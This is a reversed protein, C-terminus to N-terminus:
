FGLYKAQLGVLSLNTLRKGIEQYLLSTKMVLDGPIKQERVWAYENDHEPDKLHMGLVRGWNRVYQKDYPKPTRGEALAMEWDHPDWYRSSDPTFCEDCLVLRGMEDYGFELKTDALIVGRSAAYSAAIGYLTKSLEGLLAGHEKDVSAQTINVDHGVLAKTSPTFLAPRLAPGDVLGPALRHGGVFGTKKYDSLGSGTLYGRVICEVPIMRNRRVVSAHAWIYQRERMAKPLYQDVARGACVFDTLVKNPRLLEEDVYAKLANLIAGKKPIYADLVFDFISIRNSAVVLMLDPFGPLEYSDRVKGRNLLKLGELTPGFLLKDM